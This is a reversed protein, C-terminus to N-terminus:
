SRLKWTDLMIKHRPDLETGRERQLFPRWHDPLTELARWAEEGVRRWGTCGYPIQPHVIAADTAGSSSIFFVPRRPLTMIVTAGVRYELMWPLDPPYTM